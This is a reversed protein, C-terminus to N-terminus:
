PRDDGKEPLSRCKWNCPLKTLRNKVTLVAVTSSQILIYNGAINVAFM